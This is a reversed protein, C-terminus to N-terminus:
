TQNPKYLILLDGSFQKLIGQTLSEMGLFGTMKVVSLKSQEVQPDHTDGSHDHMVCTRKYNFPYQGLGLLEEVDLPDVEVSIKKAEPSGEIEGENSESATRKRSTVELDQKEPSLSAEAM